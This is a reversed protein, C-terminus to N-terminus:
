RLELLLRGLERMKQSIYHHKHTEHGQEEYLRNCFILILEDSQVAVTISDEKM